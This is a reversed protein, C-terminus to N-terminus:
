RHRIFQEFDFKDDCLSRGVDNALQEASQHSTCYVDYQGVYQGVTQHILRFDVVFYLKLPSSFRAFIVHLNLRKPHPTDTMAESPDNHNSVNILELQQDIRLKCVM